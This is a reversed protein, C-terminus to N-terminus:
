MQHWQHHTSTNRIGCARGQTLFIYRRHTTDCTRTVVTLQMQLAKLHGKLRKSNLWQHFFRSSHCWTVCFQPKYTCIMYNHSLAKWICKPLKYLTIWSRMCIENWLAGYISGFLDLIDWEKEDFPLLLIEANETFIVLAAFRKNVNYM